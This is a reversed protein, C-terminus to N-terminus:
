DEGVMQWFLVVGRFVMHSFDIGTPFNGAYLWSYNHVTERSLRRLKQLEAKWGWAILQVRYM